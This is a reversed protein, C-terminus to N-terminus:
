TFIIPIISLLLLGGMSFNFIRLRKPDSLFNRLSVGFVVWVSISPLNVLTFIIGVLLLSFLPNQPDVYLSLATIAMIVAKPNIWQFLCAEIFSMPKGTSNPGSSITKSFAIRWSLYILYIFAFVKLYTLLFPYLKLLQGLGLGLCSTMFFLGLSVGFIHPITRAFGYNVGSTLLMINNPGPTISSAFAFIVLGLILEWAM